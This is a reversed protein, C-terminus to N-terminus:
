IEACRDHDLEGYINESLKQIIELFHTRDHDDSTM